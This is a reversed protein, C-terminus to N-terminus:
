SDVSNVTIVNEGENLTIDNLTWNFITLKAKYDITGNNNLDVEKIIQNETVLNKEGSKYFRDSQTSIVKDLTGDFNIM